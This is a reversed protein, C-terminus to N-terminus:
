FVDPSDDSADELYSIGLNHCKFLAADRVEADPYFWLGYIWLNRARVEPAMVM